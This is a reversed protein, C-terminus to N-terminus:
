LGLVDGEDHGVSVGFWDIFQVCDAVMVSAESSSVIRCVCLVVSLPVLEIVAPNTATWPLINYTGACINQKIFPFISHNTSYIRITVGFSIM